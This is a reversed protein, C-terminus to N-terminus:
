AAPPSATEGTTRFRERYESPTIDLRRCFAKRMPQTGSFGSDLAVRQVPLRTEELLRRAEEIRALEVFHAPTIHTEQVFARAYSRPSMGAQRALQAVSLDQQLHDRIWQLV